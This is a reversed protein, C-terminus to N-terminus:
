SKRSRLSKLPIMKQIKRCESLVQKLTMTMIKDQTGLCCNKAKYIPCGNRLALYNEDLYIHVPINSVKTVSLYIKCIDLVKKLNSFHTICLFTADNRVKKDQITRQLFM